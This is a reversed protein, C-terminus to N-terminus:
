KRMELVLRASYTALLFLAITFAFTEKIVVALIALLVILVVYVMLSLLIDIIFSKM